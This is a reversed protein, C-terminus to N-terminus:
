LLCWIYVTAILTVTIVLYGTTYIEKLGLNYGLDWLVHRIGNMVHYFFSFLLFFGMTKSAVLLLHSSHIDASNFHMMFSDAITYIFYNSTHFKLFKVLLLYFLFSLALAFGTIRHFLSLVSTIQPRYVTLHPSIPRNIIM